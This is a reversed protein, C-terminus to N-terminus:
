LETHGLNSRRQKSGKAGEKRIIADAARSGAWAAGMLSPDNVYDGAFFIRGVPVRLDKQYKSAFSATLQFVGKNWRKISYALIDKGPDFGPSIKKLVTAAHEVLAEDALKQTEPDTITVSVVTGKNPEGAVPGTQNVIANIREDGILINQKPFNNIHLGLEIMPLYAVAELARAKKAALGSVVKRAVHAPTAM